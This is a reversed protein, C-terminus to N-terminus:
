LNPIQPGPLSPFGPSPPPPPPPEPIISTRFTLGLEHELEWVAMQSWPTDAHEKIVRELREKAEKARQLGLRGTSLEATPHIQLANIGADFFGARVDARMLKEAMNLYEQIRVSHALMRGLNLEYWAQWRLSEPEQKPDGSRPDAEAMIEIARELVAQAKQMKDYDTRIARELM